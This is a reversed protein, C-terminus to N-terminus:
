WAHVECRGAGWTTEKKEQYCKCCVCVGLTLWGENNVQEGPLVELVYVCGADAVGHPEKTKRTARGVHVGKLSDAEWEEEAQGRRM